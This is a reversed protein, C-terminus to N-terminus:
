DASPQNYTGESKYTERDIVRVGSPIYVMGTPPVLDKPKPLKMEKM